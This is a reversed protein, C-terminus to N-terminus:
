RTTNILVSVSGTSAVTRIVDPRGDGNVDAVAMGDGPGEGFPRSYVVAKGFRNAGRGLVVGLTSYTADSFVIDPVNDGNVDTVSVWDAGAGACCRYTAPRAFTGDGSGLLVSGSRNSGNATVVDQQRDSNVDAATIAVAGGPIAFSTATAFTGDGNNLLESVFGDADGTLIDLRGDDNVDALTVWRAPHFGVTLNTARRFTGDEQGLLVSVGAPPSAPAHGLAGSDTTIVDPAGDGNVDGIALSPTGTGAHFDPGRRFGRATGLLVSGISSSGVSVIDWRGDENVDAVAVAYPHGSVPFTGSRRFRGRSAGDLVTVANRAADAVVVDQLLDSNVDAVALGSAGHGARYTVPAAFTPTRPSAVLPPSAFGQAGVGQTPAGGALLAAIAGGLVLVCAGATLRRGTMM